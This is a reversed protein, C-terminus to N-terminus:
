GKKAVKAWTDRLPLTRNFVRAEPKSDPDVTFYGLREFQLCDGPRAAALSPELHGTVVRLSDPNLNDTFHGGEAVEDPDEVRFLRDYLRVEASVAHAVSVWHLTGKVKRGDPADGGRTAPDYRCRLEVVEGSADKVVETCTIFYAYRLRVERGPALRFFKRPPEEMFDEREIYLVRSFPVVRTGLAPDEPSNIAELEEERDEPYNELVVRLPDLVALARPATRNLEERVAHELQAVQITNDRKAVGVGEAFSRIAAPPYGRRRMGSLTPMRPDDWGDVVGSEVLEKLRRKSLITHSVNLRAFEIQQPHCDVELQDLIWDYLARRDAFELTCLSHTVSEISDSLCHAFDYMPYICWTDGTRHHPVKHVRYLIPDRLALNPSAMDIRARLTRDGNEFEGAKMRAFLDLNEEVSRDRHPSNRGPETLSGRHAALEESSLDCVFAKGRRILEVAFEYLQDFYDSTFYLHEGWDFGLWRIDEIMAEVFEGEEALPNTDDFRLHCTGDYEAAIRFSLSIAKPHGVHLYGNPEPPFRTVVRGGNKGAAVDAAVIDRIFDRPGTTEESSM